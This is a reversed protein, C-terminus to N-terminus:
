RHSAHLKPIIGVCFREATRDRAGVFLSAPSHALAELDFRKFVAPIILTPEGGGWPFLWLRSTGGGRQGRVPATAVFLGSADWLISKMAIDPEQPLRDRVRVVEVIEARRHTVRFKLSSDQLVARLLVNGEPTEAGLWFTEGSPGPAIMTPVFHRPVEKGPASITVTELDDSRIRYATGYADAPRVRTIYIVGNGSDPGEGVFFVRDAESAFGIAQMRWLPEPLPIQGLISWPTDESAYLLVHSKAPYFYLRGKRWIVSIRRKQLEEEANLLARLSTQSIIEPTLVQASMATPRGVLLALCLFLGIFFPWLARPTSMIIAASDSDSARVSRPSAKCSDYEGDCAGRLWDTRKSNLNQMQRLYGGLKPEVDFAAFRHNRVAAVPTQRM